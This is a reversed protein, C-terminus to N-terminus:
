YHKEAISDVLIKLQPALQSHAKELETQAQEVELFRSSLMEIIAREKKLANIVYLDDIKNDNTDHTAGEKLAQKLKNLQNASSDLKLVLQSKVAVISEMDVRIRGMDNLLAINKLPLNSPQTEQVTHLLLRISDQLVVWDDHEILKDRYSTIVATLSDLQNVEASYDKKFHCSGIVVAIACFFFLAMGRVSRKM